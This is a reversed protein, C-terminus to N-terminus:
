PAHTDTVRVDEVWTLCAHISDYWPPSLAKMILWRGQGPQVDLTFSGDDEQRRSIEGLPMVAGKEDAASFALTIGPCAGFLMHVRGSVRLSEPTEYLYLWRGEPQANRKNPHTLLDWSGPEKRRTLSPYLESLVIWESQTGPMRGIGQRVYRLARLAVADSSPRVRREVTAVAGNGLPFSEPLPEFDQALDLRGDFLDLVVRVVKQEEPKLHHQFPRVLVVFRAKLLTELPYADRSDLAPADLVKLRRGARGFLTEEAHTVLDPNISHSSAAVFVADDPGAREHLFSVFRAMADYDRRQLRPWNAAFTARLVGPKSAAPYGSLGFFVNCAALATATILAPPGVVEGAARALTLALLSCGLVIAPTFQLTYQEGIQRVVVLWQVAQLASFLAVFGAAAAHAVRTRVSLVFGLVAAACAALGYPKMFWALTDLSPEQYAAYLAAFNHTLARLLFRHGFVFLIALSTAGVSGIGLLDSALGRARGRHPPRGGGLARGLSWLLMASVFAAAAFLFPRRLLVAVALLVGIGVKHSRRSLRPDELFLRTALAMVAAAGADPFGRLTPVWAMPTGFGAAVTTWFAARPSDPLLKAAVSGLAFLFPIQYVLTLGLVYAMRTEGLVAFIPFLPVAFIANYDDATSQYVTYFADELGLTRFADATRLAIDQHVALDWYYFFREAGVYSRVLAAAGALSLAVLLADVAFRRFADRPWQLM